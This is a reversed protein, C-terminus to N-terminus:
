VTFLTVNGAKLNFQVLTPQLFYLDGKRPDIFKFFHSRETIYEERQVNGLGTYTRKWMFELGPVGAPPTNENECMLIRTETSEFLERMKSAPRRNRKAPTALLWNM